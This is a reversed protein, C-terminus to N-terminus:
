YVKTNLLASVHYTHIFLHLLKNGQKQYSNAYSWFLLLLVHCFFEAKQPPPHPWMYSPLALPLILWPGTNRSVVRITFACERGRTWGLGHERVGFFPELLAFCFLLILNTFTLTLYSPVNHSLSAGFFHFPPPYSPPPFSTAIIIKKFVYFFFSTTWHLSSRHM